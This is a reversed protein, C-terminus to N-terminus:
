AKIAHKAIIQWTKPDNQCTKRKPMKQLIKRCKNNRNIITLQMKHCLNNRNQAFVAIILTRLLKHRLLKHGCYNIDKLYANKKKKEKKEKLRREKKRKM